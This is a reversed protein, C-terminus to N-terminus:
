KKMWGKIYKVPIKDFLSVEKLQFYEIDSKGSKDYDEKDTTNMNIKGKSLVYDTPMEIVFVIRDEIPTTTVKTGATRFQSEGGMGSMSAYGFATNPEFALYIRGATYGEKPPVIGHKSIWDLNKKHTGHYLTVTEKEPWWGIKPYSNWPMKRISETIYQLLSM